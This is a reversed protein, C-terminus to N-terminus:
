AEVRGLRRFHPTRGARGEEWMACSRQRDSGPQARIAGRKKKRTFEEPSRLEVYQSCLVLVLLLVLLLVVFVLVM